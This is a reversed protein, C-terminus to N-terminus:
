HISAYSGNVKVYALAVKPTIAFSYTSESMPQRNPRVFTLMEFAYNANCICIDQTHNPKTRSRGSCVLPTVSETRTCRRSSQVIVIITLWHCNQEM